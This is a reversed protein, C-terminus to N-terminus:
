FLFLRSALLDVILIMQLLLVQMMATAKKIFVSHVEHDQLWIAPDAYVDVDKFVSNTDGSEYSSQLVCIKM